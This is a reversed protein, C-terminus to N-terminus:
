INGPNEHFTHGWKLIFWDRDRKRYFWMGNIYNRWFRRDFTSECWIHINYYLDTNIFNPRFAMGQYWGRDRAEQASQPIEIRQGDLYTYAEM